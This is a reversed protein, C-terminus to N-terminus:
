GGGNANKPNKAKSPEILLASLGAREEESCAQLIAWRVFQVMSLNHKQAIAKIEDRSGQPLRINIVDYHAANWHNKVISSTKGM